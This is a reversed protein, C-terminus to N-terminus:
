YFILQLRPHIIILNFCNSKLWQHDIVGIAIPSVLPDDTPFHNYSDIWPKIFDRTLMSQHPRIEFGGKTAVYDIASLEVLLDYALIEKAHKIASINDEVCLGRFISTEQPLYGIGMRARRYMPLRTIDEGDLLVQGGDSAVLGAIAYFSTTKGSGNPGLLAVIEGRQVSMSIDRIVVRRRYNKRLGKVTLGSNLNESILEAVSM